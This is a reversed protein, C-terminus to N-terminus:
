VTKKSHIIITKALKSFSIEQWTQTRQKTHNDGGAGLKDTVHSSRVRVVSWAQGWPVSTHDGEGLVPDVMVVEGQRGAPLRGPISTESQDSSTVDTNSRIIRIIWINTQVSYHYKYENM